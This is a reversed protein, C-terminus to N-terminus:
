RLSKLFFGVTPIKYLLLSYLVVQWQQIIHRKKMQKIWTIELIIIANKISKFNLEIFQIDLFASSLSVKFLYSLSVM